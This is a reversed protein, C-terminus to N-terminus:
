IDGNAKDTQMADRAEQPAYKMAANIIKRREAKDKARGRLRLAALASKKDFIPFRGDGTASKDERATSSPNGGETRMGKGM